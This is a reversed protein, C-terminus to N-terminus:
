QFQVTPFVKMPSSSLAPCRVIPGMHTRQVKGRGDVDEGAKQKEDVSKRKREKEKKRNRESLQEKTQRGRVPEEENRKDTQLWSMENM